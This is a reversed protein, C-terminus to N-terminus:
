IARVLIFSHYQNKYHNYILITRPNVSQINQRKLVAKTNGEYKLMAAALTLAFAGSTPYEGCWNKFTVMKDKGLEAVNELVVEDYRTDGTTGVLCLDIEHLSLENAVLFNQLQKPIDTNSCLCVDVIEAYSDLSALTSLVFMNAGEGAITGHSKTYFNASETKYTGFRSIIEFSHNTLEDVGGTLVNLQSNEALWMLSEQLSSEFSHGRHVYTFNHGHCGVNLAIQGSVTNHTSQIFATPTLMSENQTLLKELFLETDALSGYTTGITIVDPRELKADMLANKAAALGMRVVKSMRRLQMPPILDKYNPETCLLKNGQICNLSEFGTSYDFIQATISGIGNIYVAM